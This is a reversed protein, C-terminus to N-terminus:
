FRVAFGVRLETFGAGALDLDFGVTAEFQSALELSLDTQLFALDFLTAAGDLFFATCEFGFPGCCASDITSVQYAEWYDGTLPAPSGGSGWYSVAAFSVGNIVCELGIGVVGFSEFELTDDPYVAASDEITDFYLDFCISTGYNITPAITLTKEDLTFDLSAALTLWPLHPIAIGSVGFDASEFGLCDFDLSSAVQTCCFPFRIDITMGQFLLNCGPMGNTDGLDVTVGVSLLDTSATSNISLALDDPTLTFQCVHKVGALSLECSSTWDDFGSMPDMDLTSSILIAGFMGSCRFVQDTWGAEDLSTTSGFAWDAVEIDVRLVETLSIADSFDSALPDIVLEVRLDGELSEGMCLMCTAILLASVLVVGRKM